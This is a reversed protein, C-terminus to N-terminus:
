PIVALPIPGCGSLIGPDHNADYAAIALLLHLCLGRFEIGDRVADAVLAEGEHDPIESLRHRLEEVLKAGGYKDHLVVGPHDSGIRGCPLHQGPFLELDAALQGALDDTTHVGPLRAPAPLCDVALAARDSLGDRVGHVRSLGAALRSKRVDAQDAIVLSHVEQDFRLLHVGEHAQGDVVDPFPSSLTDPIPSRTYPLSFFYLIPAIM